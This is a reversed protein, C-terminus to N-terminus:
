DAGQDGSALDLVGFGLILWAFKITRDKIDAAQSAGALLLAGTALLGTFLSRLTNKM